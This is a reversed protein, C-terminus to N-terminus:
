LRISGRLLSFLEGRQRAAVVAMPVCAAVTGLLPGSAKTAILGAVLGAATVGLVPAAAVWIRLRGVHRNAFAIALVTNVIGGLVIAAAAGVSGTQYGLVAASTVTVAASGTSAAFDWQQKGAAILSFRFHGSFWAIPIMWVAIQFPLVAATYPGGFLLPILIPAAFTGGLAILCAPWLSNAMSRTVLARWADISIALERAMGPLMNFFYLFVFTHLAVVIRVSASIWAVQEPDRVVVWGVIIAPSYWLCAWTFDNLGMFWVDRFLRRTGPLLGQWQLRLHLRRNLLFTNFVALAAIGSVEALAVLRIDSGPRVLILVLAVFVANRIATGTAVWQMQHLGQFVWQTLLPTLLIAIGNVALIGLGDARFYSAIGLIAAFAPVALLIRLLMVQPVLSAARSPESAVVRAGYLGMGSEVSLVFFVTVSLALEVIGYEDPSLVRALYVFAITVCLKSFTEGGLLMLYRVLFGRSTLNELVAPQTTM